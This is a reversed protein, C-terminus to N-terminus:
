RLLECLAYITELAQKPTMEDPKLRTLAETIRNARTDAFLEFQQHAPPKAHVTKNNELQDLRARADKIVCRPVGALQAVQLGYSQSASGEKVAHMFVIADGHEIADLRVNAVGEVEEPLATMEFYHTAFLTYARITKALHHASAWALALGDFTSTGRGIEDMLVLSQPTANHLINATETMEVM